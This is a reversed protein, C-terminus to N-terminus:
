DLENIQTGHQNFRHKVQQQLLETYETILDGMKLSQRLNTHRKYTQCFIFCSHPLAVKETPKRYDSTKKTRLHHNMCGNCHCM